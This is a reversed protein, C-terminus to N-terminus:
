YIYIGTASKCDEGARGAMEAEIEELTRGKTEPVLAVTFALSLVMVGTYLFFVGHPGLHEVMGPFTKTVVFTASWNLATVFSAAPGRIRAPLAEGMFLWPIPGWGLSFAVVYVMFSLLPLWSLDQSLTLLWLAHDEQGEEEEEFALTGNPLVAPASDLVVEVEEEQVKTLQIGSLGAQLVVAPSPDPGLAAVAEAAFHRVLFFGSLAALSLVMLASSLYLLIKRGLRDILANAVLTSLLNVVGVIITCLHQDLSSGAMKFISVTYFIVANIGSLQQFLMLGLSIGLPRLYERRLLDRATTQGVEAACAEMNARIAYLEEEVDWASGRLWRLSQQADEYREKSVYWRPTEPVFLMMAVFIVPIIIGAYALVSWNVYAGLLFCFLIGGNGITTPLLGLTGRIEPQVVEGLYVPITLSLLGVCAGGIVRGVYVMWVSIASGILIFAAIFPPGCILIVMKRGLRDILYGGFLSATLASLPMLSSIWSTQEPTVTLTSNPAEMSALAPSTYASTFGVGMAGMAVAIAALVQTVIYLKRALRPHPAVSHALGRAIMSGREPYLESNARSIGSRLSVMSPRSSLSPFSSASGRSAMSLGAISPRSVTSVSRGKRGSSLLGSLSPRSVTSVSRGSSPSFLVSLSPRSVTSVSRGGPPTTVDPFTDQDEWPEDQTEEGSGGGGGGGGQGQPERVLVDGDQIDVVGKRRRRKKSGKTTTPPASDQLGEREEDIGELELSKRDKKKGEEEKEEEEEKKPLLPNEARPSDEEEEEEEEEIKRERPIEDRLTM